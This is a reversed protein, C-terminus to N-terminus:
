YVAVIRAPPEVRVVLTTWAPWRANPELAPVRVVVDGPLLGAPLGEAAFHRRASRAELRTPDIVRELPTGPVVGIRALADVAREWFQQRSMRQRSSPRAASLREALLETGLVADRDIVARAFRLM